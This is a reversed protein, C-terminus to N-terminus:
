ISTKPVKADKGKLRYEKTDRLYANKLKEVFLILVMVHRLLFQQFLFIVQFIIMNKFQFKYESTAVRCEVFRCKKSTQRKGGTEGDTQGDVQM